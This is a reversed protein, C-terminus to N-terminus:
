KTKVLPPKKVGEIVTEERFSRLNAVTIMQIKLLLYLRM